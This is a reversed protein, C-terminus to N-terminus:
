NKLYFKYCSINHTYLNYNIEDLERSTLALPQGDNDDNESIIIEIM